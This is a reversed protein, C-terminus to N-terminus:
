VLRRLKRCILCERHGRPNIYTNNKYLHGHICHIKKNWYGRRMNEAHSVPELHEPNVCLTNRCLHDLEVKDPIKGVFYEYSVRHARQLKGEKGFMRLQGYSGHRKKFVSGTWVWCGSENDITVKNLIRSKLDRPKEM